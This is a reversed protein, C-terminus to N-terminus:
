KEDLRLRALTRLDFVGELTAGSQRDEFTVAIAPQGECLVRRAPRYRLRPHTRWFEQFRSDHFLLGAPAVFLSPGCASCVTTFGPEGSRPGAVRVSSLRGCLLCAARGRTLGDILYAEWWGNVRRQAVRFGNANQLVQEAPLPAADTALGAMYNGPPDCAPCRLTLREPSLRGIMRTNGCRPCFLNSTVWGEAADPTLIGYAAADARLDTTLLKALADRSRALRASTANESLSLGAAIESVPIDELYRAALLTRQGPELLGFARDLLLGRESDLLSELPDSDAAPLSDAADDLPTEREPRRTGKALTRAIGNLWAPWDAVSKGARAQRLAVLLTEQALDEATPM